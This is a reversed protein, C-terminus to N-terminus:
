NVQNGVAKISGHSSLRHIKKSLKTNRAGMSAHICQARAEFSEVIAYLNLKEVGKSVPLWSSQGQSQRQKKQKM